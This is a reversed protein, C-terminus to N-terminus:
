QTSEWTTLIRQASELLEQIHDELARWALEESSYAPRYPPAGPGWKWVGSSEVVYFGLAEATRRLRRRDPKPALTKRM